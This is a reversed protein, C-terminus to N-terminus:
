KAFTAVFPRADFVIQIDAIKEGQEARPVTYRSGPTYVIVSLFTEISM